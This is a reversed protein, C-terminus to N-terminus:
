LAIVHCPQPFRSVSGTTKTPSTPPLGSPAPSCEEDSHPTPSRGDSAWTRDDIYDLYQRLHTVRQDFLTVLRVVSIGNERMVDLLGNTEISTEWPSYEVQVAEIRAIKLARELTEPSCESIGLHKVKGADQLEKM